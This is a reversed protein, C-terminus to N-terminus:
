PKAKGLLWLVAGTLCLIPGHHSVRRPAGIMLLMSLILVCGFYLRM